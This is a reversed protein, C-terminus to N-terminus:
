FIEFMECNVLIAPNIMQGLVNYYLCTEQLTEPDYLYCHELDERQKPDLLYQLSFLRHPDYQHVPLTVSM